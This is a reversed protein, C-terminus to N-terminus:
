TMRWKKMNKIICWKRSFNLFLLCLGEQGWFTEFQRPNKQTRKKQTKKPKKGGSFYYGIVRTSSSKSPNQKNVKAESLFGCFHRENKVSFLDPKGMGHWSSYMETQINFATHIWIIKKKITEKIFSCESVRTM